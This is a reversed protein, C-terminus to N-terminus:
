RFMRKNVLNFHKVARTAWRMKPSRLKVEQAKYKLLVEMVDNWKKQVDEKTILAVVKRGRTETKVEVKKTTEKVVEKKFEKKM